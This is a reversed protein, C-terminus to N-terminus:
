YKRSQPMLGQNKGEIKDTYSVSGLRFKLPLKTTKEIQWEKSCFFSLHNAYYNESIITVPSVANTSAAISTYPSYFLRATDFPKIPMTEKFQIKHLSYQAHTEICVFLYFLFCIACRLM